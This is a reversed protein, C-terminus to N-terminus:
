GTWKPTLNWVLPTTVLTLILYMWIICVQSKVLPHSSKVLCRPQIKLLLAVKLSTNVNYFYQMWIEYLWSSPGIYGTKKNTEPTIACYAWSYRNRMHAALKADFPWPRVRLSNRKWVYPHSSRTVNWTCSLFDWQSQRITLSFRRRNLM